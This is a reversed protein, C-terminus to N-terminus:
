WKDFPPFVPDNIDGKIKVDKLIGKLSAFTKKEIPVLKLVPLNRETITIEQGTKQVLTLYKSTHNSFERKGVKKAPKMAGTYLTMVNHTLM